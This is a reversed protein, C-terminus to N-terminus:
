GMIHGGKLVYIHWKWPDWYTSAQCEAFTVADGEDEFETVFIHGNGESRERIVKCM